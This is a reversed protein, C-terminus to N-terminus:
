DGDQRAKLREFLEAGLRHAEAIQDKTMKEELLKKEKMRYAMVRDTDQANAALSLWMYALPIDKPTPDGDRYMKGITFQAWADGQEAAKTCPKVAAKHNGRLKARICEKSPDATAGVDGVAFVMLLLAAAYRM